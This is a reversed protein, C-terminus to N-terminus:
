HARHGALLENIRGALRIDLATIGGADHTSLDITVRNYVNSWAPHHNMREAILAVGTIFRFADVFDEFEMERHLSGNKVSWGQLSAIERHVEEDSLRNRDTM